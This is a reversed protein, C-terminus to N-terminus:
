PNLSIVPEEVWGAEEECGELSQPIERLARSEKLDVWIPHSHWPLRRIKLCKQRGKSLEELDLICANREKLVVQRDLSPM